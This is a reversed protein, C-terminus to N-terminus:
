NVTLQKDATVRLFVMQSDTPLYANVSEAGDIFIPATINNYRCLTNIIDLGANLQGATNSVSYPVDNVLPVCTEIEGGEITYDFLRFTVQTFLSNIRKECQEIRTRIFDQAVKEARETDAILQALEKGREALRQIEDQSRQIQQRDALRAHILTINATIESIQRETESQAQQPTQDKYQQLQQQLQQEIAEAETYGPVTQPLVEPIRQIPHQKLQEYLQALTDRLQRAQSELQQQRRTLTQAEQLTDELLKKSTLGQRNNQQLQEQRHSEAIAQAQQLMHPPLQQNCHPCTATVSLPRDKIDRWQQRLTDLKATLEEQQRRLDDIRLTNRRLDIENTSIQRSTQKIRSEIEARAANAEQQLQLTQQRAQAALRKKEQRIDALQEQLDAVARRRARHAQGADDLQQRLTDREQTLKQAQRTLEDWDDPEPMLKKTQEIRPKIEQLEARLKKRRHQLERRYDAVPKGSLQQLLVPFAPDARSVEADTPQGAMHTLIERQKQWPQTLFYRPNTIMKFINDSIINDEVRRQFDTVKVPIGNWSCETTNGRFVEEQQGKPKVWNEKYERKLRHQEGDISILAEVSCECRHLPQRAATYTRLEHDKRDLHDKGFLLWCFADFHRTKGTANDGCIHTPQPYPLFTTTRSHEGRWNTLTIQLITIQKM